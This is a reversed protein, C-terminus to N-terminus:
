IKKFHIVYTDPVQPGLFVNLRTHGMTGTLSLSEILKPSVRFPYSYLYGYMPRM